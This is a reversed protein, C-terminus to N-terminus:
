YQKEMERKDKQECKKLCPAVQADPLSFCYQICGWTAGDPPPLNIGRILVVSSILASDHDKEELLVDRAHAIFPLDSSELFDYKEIRLIQQDTLLFDLDSISKFSKAIIIDKDANLAM